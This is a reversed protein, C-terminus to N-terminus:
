EVTMRPANLSIEGLILQPQQYCLKNVLLTQTTKLGLLFICIQLPAFVCLQGHKHLRITIQVPCNTVLCIFLPPLGCVQMNTCM